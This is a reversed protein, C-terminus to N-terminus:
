QLHDHRPFVFRSSGPGHRFLRRRARRALLAPRGDAEVGRRVAMRGARVRRVLDDEADDRHDSRLRLVSRRVQRHLRWRGEHWVPGGGVPALSRRGVVQIGAFGPRPRQGPLFLVGDVPSADGGELYFKEATQYDTVSVLHMSGIDANVHLTTGLIERDVYSEQTEATAWPDGGRSPTIADNRYGTGGEGPGTGWFDCSVDAPTFIGQFQENPCAPEQSYLGAQTERDAKMYRVLLNVDTGDSPQWAIQGRLAYHDNGGRDEVGPVVSRMYGDDTNSIAALRGQMTESFPGSVAGEAIVQNYNGLTLTAYGEFEKTPKNSVFQIAGGTANRGFLTGQPGRLVEVRALDFVPFSALNISSSYSDDQYVAVPPEQQDGYDNQSVGRVNFVVQSSSYANMKLSPVARTIDTATTINLDTLAESGLATVSVGVDQLNQERRLATVVIEELGAPTTSPEAAV